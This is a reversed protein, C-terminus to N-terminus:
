SRTATRGVSTTPRCWRRIGISRVSARGSASRLSATRRTATTDYIGSSNPNVNERVYTEDFGSGSEVDCPCKVRVRCHLPEFWNIVSRGLRNEDAAAVRRCVLQVFLGYPDIANVPNGNVYAYLNIGGRIGIPDALTYRGWGARSWRFINFGSIM